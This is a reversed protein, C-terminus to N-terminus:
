EIDKVQLWSVQHVCRQISGATELSDECSLKGGEVPWDEEIIINWASDQAGPLSISLVLESGEHLKYELNSERSGLLPYNIANVSLIDMKQSHPIGLFSHFMVVKVLILKMKSNTKVKALPLLSSSFLM